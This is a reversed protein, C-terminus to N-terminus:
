AASGDDGYMAMAAVQHITLAQPKFGGAGYISVLALERAYWERVALVIRGICLADGKVMAAHLPGEADSLQELMDMVDIGRRKEALLREFQHHASLDAEIAHLTAANM